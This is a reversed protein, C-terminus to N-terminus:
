RLAADLVEVPHLPRRGTGHEIQHRCSFGPAVVLTGTHRRVAPFLVREGIQMSLDYHEYGFSGAMGCCGSDVLECKLDPVKGLASLLPGTGVLAKQHCHGHVVATEQRPALDLQLEERALLQEITLCAGAVLKSEGGPVLDLYDDALTLICSPEVGVIPIGQDAYARLRRINVQALQLAETLMGKSILARGCCEVGALRVHYGAAELVRVAAQNIHPECYSTLCDDLLVVTPRSDPADMSHAIQRRQFWSRFDRRVFQPLPRRRDVGALKENLWGAGPLKGLWNSIPALRSGWRNLKWVRGMMRVGLPTGNHQHYHHLFEAKLKAVDVNSPCEAKCGKCQLCLDYTEYLKRGTLQEPLLAGSLVLRM